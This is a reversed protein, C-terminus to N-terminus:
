ELSLILKSFYSYMLLESNVGDVILLYIDSTYKIICLRVSENIKMTKCMNLISQTIDSNSYGESKLRKYNSIADVINKAICANIINIIIKPNPQYCLQYVNSETINNYCYYTAELNNIAYRIDGNSIRALAELGDTTYTINELKCIYKIREIINEESVNNFYYMLCKNQIPEIIKSTDNCTFTFITNYNYQDMLEALIYQAKNTINDAEDFIIIKKNTNIKKKCFHTVLNNITEIGRNDSANLELLANHDKLFDKALCFLTTTKGTGSFGTLILNPLSTLSKLNLLKKKLISNMVIEDLNNPRYKEIWPINM